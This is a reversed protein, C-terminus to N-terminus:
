KKRPKPKKKVAPKKVPKKKYATMPANIAMHEEDHLDNLAEAELIAQRKDQIIHNRIGRIVRAIPNRM